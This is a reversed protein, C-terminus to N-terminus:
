KEEGRMRSLMTINGLIIAAVTVISLTTYSDIVMHGLGKDGALKEYQAGGIYGNTMYVKGPYSYMYPSFFAYAASQAFSISTINYKAVVIRIVPVFGWHPCFWLSIDKYNHVKQMLPLQDIPTGALDISVTKHIDSLFSDLVVEDSPGPIYPLLVYDEGYKWPGGYKDKDVRAADIVYKHFQPTESWLPVAILKIGKRAMQKICSIMGPSSEIDFAFVGGGGMVVISGEPLSEVIKYIELTVDSMPFPTNLPRLMPILFAITVVIWIHESKLEPMKAM